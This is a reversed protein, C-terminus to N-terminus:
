AAPEDSRRRLGLLCAAAAAIIPVGPPAIPILALAILAGAAAASGARRSRLQPWLLALFLAPFAADLGLADPDGLFRGGLAGVATSSVWAVWLTLAAGILTGRDYHGDGRAALAWSEDVV